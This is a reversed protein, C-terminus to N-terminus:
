SPFNSRELGLTMVGATMMGPISTSPKKGVESKREMKMLWEPPNMMRFGDAVSGVTSGVSASLSANACMAGCSSGSDFIEGSVRLNGHFTFEVGCM